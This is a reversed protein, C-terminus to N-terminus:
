VTWFYPITTSCVNFLLIDWENTEWTEGVFDTCGWTQVHGLGDTGTVHSASDQGPQWDPEASDVPSASKLRSIHGAQPSQDFEAASNSASKM